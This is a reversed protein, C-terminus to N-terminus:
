GDEGPQRMPGLARRAAGMATAFAARPARAHEHPFAHQRCYWPGGGHTGHSIGGPKNCRQGQEVNACCWWLPDHWASAKGVPVGYGCAACTDGDVPKGCRACDRM